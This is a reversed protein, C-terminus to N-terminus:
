LVAKFISVILIVFLVVMVRIISSAMKKNDTVWDQIPNSKIWVLPLLVFRDAFYIAFFIPIALVNLAVLFKNKM